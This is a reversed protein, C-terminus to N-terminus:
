KRIVQTVLAMGLVSQIMWLVSAIGHWTAFRSRVVSELMERAPDLRLKEVIPTVGFHGAITLLLMLIILWLLVSKFAKLGDRFLLYALLYGGCGIGLWAVIAFQKGALTGAFGTDAVAAFLVPASIYGISWLAGVWLTLALAFLYEALRSM